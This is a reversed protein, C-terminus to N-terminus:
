QIYPVSKEKWEKIIAAAEESRIYYQGVFFAENESAFSINEGNIIIYGDYAPIVMDLFAMNRREANELIETFKELETETPHYYSEVNRPNADPTIFYACDEVKFDADVLVNALANGSEALTKNLVGEKVSVTYIVDEGTTVDVLYLNGDWERFETHPKIERWFYDDYDTFRYSKNEALDFILVTYIKIFSVSMAPLSPVTEQLSICMDRKGDGTVDAFYVSLPLKNFLHDGTDINLLEEGNAFFKREFYCIELSLEHLNFYLERTFAEIMEETKLFYDFWKEAGYGITEPEKFPISEAPDIDGVVCSSFVPLILALILPITVYFQHKKM